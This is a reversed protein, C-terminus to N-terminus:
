FIFIKKMLQINNKPLYKNIFLNFQYTSNTKFTFLSIFKTKDKNDYLKLLKFYYIDKINKKKNIKFELDSFLKIIKEMNNIFISKTNTNKYLFYFNNIYHQSYFISSNIYDKNTDIKNFETIKSLEDEAIFPQYYDANLFSKKNGMDAPERLKEILVNQHNYLKIKPNKIELRQKAAAVLKKKYNMSINFEFLPILNFKNILLYGLFIIIGTYTYHLDKYFSYITKLYDDDIQYEFKMKLFSFKPISAFTVMQNIEKYGNFLNFYYNLFKSIQYDLEFITYIINEWFHITLVFTMIGLFILGFFVAYLNDISKNEKL